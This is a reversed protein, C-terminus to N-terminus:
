PNPVLVKSRRKLLAEKLLTFIWAIFFSEFVTILFLILRPVPANPRHLFFAGNLGTAMVIGHFAYATYSLSSLQNLVDEMWRPLHAAEVARALPGSPACLSAAALALLTYGWVHIYNMRLPFQFGLSRASIEGHSLMVNVQGFALALLCFLLFYRGTGRLAGRGMLLGIVIAEIHTLPLCYLADAEHAGLEGRSQGFVAAALFRFLIGLGVSALVTIEPTTRVLVKRLAFMLVQLQLLAAVFWLPGFVYDRPINYEFFPLTLNQLFVPSTFIFWLMGTTGFGLVVYLVTAIWVLSVEPWFRQVRSLAFSYASEHREIQRVMNFGAVVFFLEVAIWGTNSFPIGVHFGIVSVVGSIQLLSLHHWRQRLQTTSM